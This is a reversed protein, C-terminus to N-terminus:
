GLKERGLVSEWKLAQFSNVHKVQGTFKAEKWWTSSSNEAAGKEPSSENEWNVDSITRKIFSSSTRALCWAPRKRRRSFARLSFVRASIAQSSHWFCLCRSLPASSTMGDILFRCRPTKILSWASCTPIYVPQVPLFTFLSSLNPQLVLTVSLALFTTWTLAIHM